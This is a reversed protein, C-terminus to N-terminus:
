ISKLYEKPSMDENKKFAKYFTSKSSFGSELAVGLISYGKYEEKKINKKFEEVRLNNIFDNFNVGKHLNILKSIYKSNMGIKSGLCDLTLKTDKYIRERIILEIM